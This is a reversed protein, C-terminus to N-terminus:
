DRSQLKIIRKAISSIKDSIEKRAIRGTRTNKWQKGQFAYADGDPADFIYGIPIQVSKLVDATTADVWQQTDVDYKLRPKIENPNIDTRPVDVPVSKVRRYPYHNRIYAWFFKGKSDKKLMSKTLAEPVNDYEYVNGNKFTIYLKTGTHEVTKLHSSDVETPAISELIVQFLKKIEYNM